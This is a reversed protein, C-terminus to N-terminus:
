PSREVSGCLLADVDINRCSDLASGKLVDVDIAGFNLALDHVMRKRLRIAIRVVRRAITSRDVLHVSALKDISRGLIYHEHLLRRDDWALSSVASVFARHCAQSLKADRDLRITRDSSIWATRGDVEAGCARIRRQYGGESRLYDLSRNRAIANLWSQFPGDGRYSKIGPARGVLLRGRIDQFIDEVDTEDAVLRRVVAMAGSFYTEELAACAGPVGSCCAACLYLEAMYAPARAGLKLESLYASFEEFEIVCRTWREVCCQYAEFWSDRRADREPVNKKAELQM